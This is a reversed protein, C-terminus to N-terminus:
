SHRQSFFDEGSIAKGKPSFIERTMTEISANEEIKIVNKIILNEELNKKYSKIADFNNLSIKVQDLLRLISLAYMDAVTYLHGMLFAQDLLRDEMVQLRKDIKDNITNIYNEKLDKRHFLSAFGKHLETSIFTLWEICKAREFSDKPMFAGGNELSLYQLISTAELMLVGNDLVLVPVYGLPNYSELVKKDALSVRISEYPIVLEELLIHVALSCAGKAYVLKM